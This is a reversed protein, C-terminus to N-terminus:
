DLNGIDNGAFLHHTVLGPPREAERLWRLLMYLQIDPGSGPIGIEAEGVGTLRRALEETLEDGTIMSDGVRLHYPAGDRFDAPRSRPAPWLVPIEGRAVIARTSEAFLTAPTEGVGQL